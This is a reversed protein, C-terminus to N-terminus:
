QYLPTEKQNEMGACQDQDKTTSEAQIEEGDVNPDVKDKMIIPDNKKRKVMIKITKAIKMAIQEKGKPNMHLGHRTFLDRDSDVEIVCSNNFVKLHKKLKRNYV